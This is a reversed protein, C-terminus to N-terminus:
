ARPPDGPLTPRFSAASIPRDGEHIVRVVLEQAEDVRGGIPEQIDNSWTGAACRPFARWPFLLLGPLNFHHRRIGCSVGLEAHKEKWKYFTADSLSIQRRVDAVPTGGEALRLTVAIQGQSFRSKKM